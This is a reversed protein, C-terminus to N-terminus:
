KDSEGAAFSREYCEGAQKCREPEGCTSVCPRFDGEDYGEDCRQGNEHCRCYHQRIECWLPEVQSM